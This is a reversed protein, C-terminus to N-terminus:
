IQECVPSQAERLFSNESPNPRLERCQPGRLVRADDGMLATKFCVDCVATAGTSHQRGVDQAGDENFTENLVYRGEETEDPVSLVDKRVETRDCLYAMYPSIDSKGRRIQPAENAKVPMWILDANVERSGAYISVQM